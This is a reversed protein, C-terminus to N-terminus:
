KGKALRVFGLLNKINNCSYKFERVKAPFIGVNGGITWINDKNVKSIIEIHGGGKRSFVILDGTQPINVRRGYKLYSKARLLYPLDYGSKKLCYSIFGACWPLNEQGNLYQRVYYGKNNGGIEGHGIEQQAITIPLSFNRNTNIESFPPSIHVQRSSLIQNTTKVPCLSKEARVSFIFGLIIFVIILGCTVIILWDFFDKRNFKPDIFEITITM